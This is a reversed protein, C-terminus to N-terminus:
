KIECFTRFNKFIKIKYDGGCKFKDTYSLMCGLVTPQSGTYGMIVLALLGMFGATQLLWHEGRGKKREDLSDLSLLSFELSSFSSLITVADEVPLQSSFCPSSVSAYGFFM